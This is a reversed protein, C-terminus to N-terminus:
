ILGKRKMNQVTYRIVKKYETRIQERYKFPFPMTDLNNHYDMVAKSRLGLRYLKQYLDYDYIDLNGYQYINYDLEYPFAKIYRKVEDLGMGYFDYEFKELLGKASTRKFIKETKLVSEM